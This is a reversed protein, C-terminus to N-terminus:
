REASSLRRETEAILEYLRRVMQPELVENEAVSAVRYLRKAQGLSSHQRFLLFDIFEDAYKLEFM